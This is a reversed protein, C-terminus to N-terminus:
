SSGSSTEAASSSAPATSESRMSGVAVIANPPPTAELARTHAGRAARRHADAAEVRHQAGLHVPHIQAREVLGRERRDMARPEIM